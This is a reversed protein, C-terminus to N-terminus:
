FVSISQAAVPALAVQASSLFVAMASMLASLFLSMDSMMINIIILPWPLVNLASIKVRNLM